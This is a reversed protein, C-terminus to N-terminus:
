VVEGHVSGACKEATVPKGPAGCKGEITKLPLAGRDYILNWGESGRVPRAAPDLCSCPNVGSNFRKM